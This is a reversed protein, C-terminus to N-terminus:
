SSLTDPHKRYATRIIGIHQGSLEPILTRIDGLYAILKDSQEAVQSSLNFIVVMWLLVAAWSILIIIQKKDKFM